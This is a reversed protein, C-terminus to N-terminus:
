AVELTFCGADLASAAFFDGSGGGCAGLRLVLGCRVADMETREFKQFYRFPIPAAAPGTKKGNRGNLSGWKYAM